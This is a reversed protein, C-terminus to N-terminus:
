NRQKSENLIQERSVSRANELRVRFEDEDGFGLSEKFVFSLCDFVRDVNEGLNVVLLNSSDSGANSREVEYKEGARLFESVISDFLKQGGIEESIRIEIYYSENDEMRKVLHLFEKTNLAEICLYSGDYGQRVLSEVNSRLSTFDYRLGLSLRKYSFYLVLAIMVFIAFTVM